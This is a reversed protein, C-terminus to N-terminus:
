CQSIVTEENQVSDCFAVDISFIHCVLALKGSLFLQAVDHSFRIKAYAFVIACILLKKLQATVMFSILM